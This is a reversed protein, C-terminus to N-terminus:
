FMHHTVDVFYYWDSSCSILNNCLKDSLDKFHTPNIVPIYVTHVAIKLPMFDM